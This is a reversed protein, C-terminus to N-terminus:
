KREERILDLMELIEVDTKVLYHDSETETQRVAKVGLEEGNRLEISTLFIVQYKLDIERVRCFYPGTDRNRKYMLAYEQIFNPTQLLEITTLECNLWRKEM